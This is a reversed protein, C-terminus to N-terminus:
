KGLRHFPYLASVLRLSWVRAWPKEGREGKEQYRQASAPHCSSSPSFPNSELRETAGSPVQLDLCPSLVVEIM